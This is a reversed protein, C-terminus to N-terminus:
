SCTIGKLGSTGLFIQIGELDYLLLHCVFLFNRPEAQIFLM